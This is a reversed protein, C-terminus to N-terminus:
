MWVPRFTAKAERRAMVMALVFPFAARRAARAGYELLFHWDIIGPGIFRSYAQYQAHLEPLEALVSAAAAVVFILRAIPLRALCGIGSFILAASLIPVVFLVAVYHWNDWFLSLDLRQRGANTFRSVAVAIEATGIVIGGWATLKVVPRWTNAVPGTHYALVPTPQTSSTM